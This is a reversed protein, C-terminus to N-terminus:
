KKETLSALKKNNNNQKNRLNKSIEKKFHTLSILLGFQILVYKNSHYTAKIYYIYWKLHKYITSFAENKILLFNAESQKLLFNLIVKFIVM